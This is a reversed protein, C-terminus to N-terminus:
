FEHNTARSAGIYLHKKTFHRHDTELLRVTGPLTLGQVSAYTLAHCLRLSKGAAERTLREGSELVIHEDIESVTYFIGKRCLGGAGVLQQGPWAYFPEPGKLFIAEHERKERLNCARNVAQRAAHSITLSFRAAPVRKLPFQRRGELLAQEFVVGDKWLGCYFDFLVADSRMNETLEMRVGGSLEYLLDSRELAGQPVPCGAWTDCVADLQKFDGLLVFRCGVHLCKGIDNWLYTSIQSIEEVVLVDCTCHGRRPQKRVWHDATQAGEGFNQVALHTKAVIVVNLDKARLDRVLQRCWHTKGVGPAGTCLLSGGGM